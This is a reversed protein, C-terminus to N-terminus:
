SHEQHNHQAHDPQCAGWLDDYTAYDHRHLLRNIARIQGRGEGDGTAAERQLVSVRVVLDCAELRTAQTFALLQAEDAQEEATEVTDAMADRQAIMEAEHAQADDADARADVGFAIVVGFAAALALAVFIGVLLERNSRPAAHAPVHGGSPRTEVYDDLTSETM